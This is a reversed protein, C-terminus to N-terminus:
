GLAKRISKELVKLSVDVKLKGSEAISIGGNEESIAIAIADSV